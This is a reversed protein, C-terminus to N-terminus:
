RGARTSRCPSGATAPSRRTPRATTSRPRRRQPTLTIQDGMARIVYHNWDGKHLAELAKPSPRPWSGTGGRSTTSAAGLLGPRHRGPLGVDRPRARPREPVPRRQQGLRGGAPRQVQPHLRRLEGRDGPLQEAQDGALRRRADRGEGVLAVLGGGLRDLDKGNFLPVFGATEVIAPEGDLQRAWYRMISCSYTGGLDAAGGPTPAYGGDSQRHRAIYGRLRGLDPKEKMMFFARMIRYSSGLDSPGDGERGAATPSRAPASRPSSRPRRAGARADVGMRLLAAVKSGTARAQGPGQGFTGDPNQDAKVQEIWRPFDPSTAKIAELGAVAIRVEEFTKANKSFFGIAGEAYPKADLKLAAVAM